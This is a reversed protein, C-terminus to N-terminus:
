ADKGTLFYITNELISGSVRIVDEKTVAMIKKKYEELDCDIGLYMCDLVYQQMYRQDDQYSNFADILANKSFNFEDESIKGAKLESLQLMVEDYAKQFNAFEIGANVTMTGKYKNLSSSAYYALSLKERVNNFLKSHTGAGFISNAVVLAPYDEDEAALDTTFGIALKGQTVEMKDCVNKVEDQAKIKSTCIKECDTFNYKSIFKEIEKAIEGCDAEGNVFIDIQSSTMIKKYHEFLSKANIEKIGETTGLRSLAYVDGKCMEESCRRKAYSRKDNILAEIRNVANNKERKVIEEDFAGDKELPEFLVNMMLSMLKSVPNEKEPTYKDSITEGDFVIIQNDGKKLVGGGLAAGYLNQLEKTLAMTTPYKKCASKLVYPLCANMSTEEAKLRRRIYIGIVTTKLKKMETYHLRINNNINETIM